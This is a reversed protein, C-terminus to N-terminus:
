SHRVLKGEIQHRRIHESQTMVELNDPSNNHKNHDRHHVIEGPLLKRGLIQEAIVRHEHRGYYKLYSTSKAKRLKPQALRSRNIREEESTIFNPDGYRRFRQAHKGCYGHSDNKDSCGDMKCLPAKYRERNIDGYKKLRQYHQTCLGKAIIRRECKNAM